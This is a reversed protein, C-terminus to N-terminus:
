TRPRDAFQSDPLEGGRCAVPAAVLDGAIRRRDLRRSTSTKRSACPAAVVDGDFACGSVGEVPEFGFLDAIYETAM